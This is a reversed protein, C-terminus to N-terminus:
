VALEMQIPSDLQRYEVHMTREKVRIFLNESIVTTDAGTEEMATASVEGVTIRWHESPSLQAMARAGKRRKDPNKVGWNAIHPDLLIKKDGEFTIPCNQIKYKDTCQGNLCPKNCPKENNQRAREEGKKSKSKNNIDPEDDDAWQSNNAASSKTEGSQVFGNVKKSIKKAKCLFHAVPGHNDDKWVLKAKFVLDRVKNHRLCNVMRKISKKTQTPDLLYDAEALRQVDTMVSHVYTQVGAAPDEAETVDKCKKIIFAVQNGLDAPAKSFM